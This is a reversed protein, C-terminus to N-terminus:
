TRRARVLRATETVLGLLAVHDVADADAAAVALLMDGLTLRKGECM